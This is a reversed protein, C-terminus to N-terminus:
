PVESKNPPEAPWPHGALSDLVYTSSEDFGLGSVRRVRRPSALGCISKDLGEKTSVLCEFAAPLRGAVSTKARYDCAGATTVRGEGCPDRGM